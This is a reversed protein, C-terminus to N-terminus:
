NFLPWRFLRLGICKRCIFRQLEFAGNRAPITAMSSTTRVGRTCPSFIQVFEALPKQLSPSLQLPCLGGSMVENILIVLSILLVTVISADVATVLRVTCFSVRLAGGPAVLVKNNSLM